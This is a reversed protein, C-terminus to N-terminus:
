WLLLLLQLLRMDISEMLCRTPLTPQIQVLLSEHVQPRGLALSLHKLLCQARQSVYRSAVQNLLVVLGDIKLPRILSNRCIVLLHTYEVIDALSTKLLTLIGGDLLHLHVRQFAEVTADHKLLM